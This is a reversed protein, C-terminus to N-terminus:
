ERVEQHKVTEDSQLHRNPHKGEVFELLCGNAADVLFELNGTDEYRKIRDRVMGCRDYDAKGAAGLLGYRIGGIILRNRMLQEFEPSWESRQLSPLDPMGGVERVEEKVGASRRWLDDLFPRAENGVVPSPDVPACGGRCVFPYESTDKCTSNKIHPTAHPCEGRIICKGHEPCLVLIDVPECAPCGVEFSACSYYGGAIRMVEHPTAHPCDYADSCTEAKPCIVKM